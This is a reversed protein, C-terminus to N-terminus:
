VPSWLQRLNMLGKESHSENWSNRQSCHGRQERQGEYSHLLQSVFATVRPSLVQGDSALSAERHTGALGESRTAV